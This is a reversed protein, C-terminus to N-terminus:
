GAESRDRFHMWCRGTRPPTMLSSSRAAYFGLGPGTASNQFGAPQYDGRPTM